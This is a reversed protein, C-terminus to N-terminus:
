SEEGTVDAGLDPYLERICAPCLSHSFEVESHTSIYHEVQQWYGGDDRVKKCRACIPIIGRLQRVEQLAEQLEGILKTREAEARKLELHTRVRAQVERYEFPKIIYDVGGVQFGRVKDDVHTRATIFIIPLYRDSYSRLLEEAAEFGDGDPLMVDLLILDPVEREVAQYTEKVNQAVAFRYGEGELLRYLVEVNEAVDDVILILPEPLPDERRGDEQPLVDGSGNEHREKM